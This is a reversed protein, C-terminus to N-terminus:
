GALLAALGLAMGIKLAGSTIALMRPCPFRWAWALLILLPLEAIYISIITYAPGFWHRWVPICTLVVLIAFLGLAIALARSAGWALPLSGLGARRDGEMDQVDKVIERVLHFLFAFIAGVMPGPLRFAAASDVALGGAVFTLGASFAVAINGIVPWRKLRLNYATLLSVTLLGLITVPWSVAMGVLVASINVGVAASLAARLSIRRSVLVRDPRNVADVKIDVFDNLINGAACTLFAAISVVTPGYYEPSTWTLYAGIWVGVSALLCNILRILRLWDIFRQV